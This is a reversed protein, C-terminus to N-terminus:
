DDSDEKKDASALKDMLGSMKKGISKFGKKVGSFFEDMDEEYTDDEDLADTAEDIKHEIDSSKQSEDNKKGFLAM